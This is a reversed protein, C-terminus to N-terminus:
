RASRTGDYRTKSRRCPQYKQLFRWFVAPSLQPLAKPLALIGPQIGVQVRAVKLVDAEVLGKVQAALASFAEDRELGVAVELEGQVVALQGFKPIGMNTKNELEM